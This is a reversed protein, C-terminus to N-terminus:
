RAAGPKGSRTGRVYPRDAYGATEAPGAAIVAHGKGRFIRQKAATYKEMTGHHDLHDPTVNLLVAIDPAFTPCLDLQYSSLELVFVGNAPPMDLALAAHGINGGVAATIGNSNLIHGTLATTTSKGNTGTIGIVKRGHRCRHLIEIDCLMETGAARARKLLPHHLKVGPALVLCAYASLDEELLNKIHPGTRKAPDDDWAAVQAGAKVLADIVAANSIGLGFVAVPKGKLTNVFATTDIM